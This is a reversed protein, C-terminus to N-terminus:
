PTQPFSEQVCLEDWQSELVCNWQHTPQITCMSLWSTYGLFRGTSFEVVVLNSWVFNSWYLIRDISLEVMVYFVVMMIKEILDM